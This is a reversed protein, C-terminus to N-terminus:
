TRTFILNCIVPVKLRSSSALSATQSHMREWRNTLSTSVNGWVHRRDGRGTEDLAFPSVFTGNQNEWRHKSFSESLGPPRALRPSHHERASFRRMWPRGLRENRRQYLDCCTSTGKANVSPFKGFQNQANAIKIFNFIEFIASHNCSLESPTAWNLCTEKLGKDLNLCVLQQQQLMNLGHSLNKKKEEKKCLLLKFCFDQRSIGFTQGSQGSAEVNCCCCCLLSSCVSNENMRKLTESNLNIYTDTKKKALFGRTVGGGRGYCCSTHTFFFSGASASAKDADFMSAHIEASCHFIGDSLTHAPSLPQKPKKQNKLVHTVVDSGAPQM